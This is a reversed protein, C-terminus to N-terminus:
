VIVVMVSQLIFYSLLLSYLHLVILVAMRDRGLHVSTRLINITTFVLTVCSSSGYSWCWSPSFFSAHYYYHICSYCLLFQWVIVVVVSQLIFYPLLLSYLHLVILVVIRDRGRRDSTHLMTITTFVLTRRPRSRIATRITSCKYESSNGHKMRWDTTTTITHYNSKCSDTCDSDIM